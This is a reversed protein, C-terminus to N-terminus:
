LYQDDTTSKRKGLYSPRYRIRVNSISRIASLQELTLFHECDLCSVFMPQATKFNRRHAVQRLWCAAITQKPNIKCNM